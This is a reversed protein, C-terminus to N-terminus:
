AKIKVGRHGLALAFLQSTESLLLQQEWANDDVSIHAEV